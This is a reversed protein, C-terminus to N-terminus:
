VQWPLTDQISQEEIFIYSIDLKLAQHNSVILISDLAGIFIILLVLALAASISLGFFLIKNWACRHATLAYVQMRWLNEILKDWGVRAQPLGM